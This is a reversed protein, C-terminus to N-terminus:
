EWKGKKMINEFVMKVQQRLLNVTGDNIIVYDALRVKDSISMQSVLRKEIEDLLFGRGILRQVQTRESAYVCVVADWGKSEGIEYLLPVIVGACRCGEISRGELWAIWSRKVEPHIIQNLAQLERSNSFVKTGLRHRDIEGNSGLIDRNFVRVVEEFVVSGRAMLEHAIDDADRVAMGAKSLCDGVTSKGCALGGTIAIRLM